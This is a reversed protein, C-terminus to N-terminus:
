RALNARRPGQPGVAARLAALVTRPRVVPLSVPPDTWPLPVTEGPKFLREGDVWVLGQDPLVALRAGRAVAALKPAIPKGISQSWTIRRLGWAGVWRSKRGLVDEIERPRAVCVFAAHASSAKALDARVATVDSMSVDGTGVLEFRDADAVYWDVARALRLVRPRRQGDVLGGPPSNM